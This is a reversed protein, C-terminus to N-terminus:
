IMIIVNSHGGTIVDVAEAASGARELGLRLLDMGLLRPRLDFEADSLRNWVAENGIVVGADNAGM